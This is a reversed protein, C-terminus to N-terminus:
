QPRACDSRLVLDASPLIGLQSLSLHRQLQLSRHKEMHVDEFIGKLEQADVRM